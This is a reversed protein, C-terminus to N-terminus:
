LCYFNRKRFITHWVVKFCNSTGFVVPQKKLEEIDRGDAAAEEAEIEKRVQEITKIGGKWRRTAFVPFSSVSCPRICHFVVSKM